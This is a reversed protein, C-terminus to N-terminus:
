RIFFKMGGVMLKVIAIERVLSLVPVDKRGTKIGTLIIKEGSIM